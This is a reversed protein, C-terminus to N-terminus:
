AQTAFLLEDDWGQREGIGPLEGIDLRECVNGRHVQEELSRPSDLGIKIHRRVIGRGNGLDTKARSPNGSAISNAAARMM